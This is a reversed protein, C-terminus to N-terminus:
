RSVKKAFLKQTPNSKPMLPLAKNVALNDDVILIKKKM